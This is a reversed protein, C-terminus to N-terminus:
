NQRCRIHVSPFYTIELCGSANQYHESAKPPTRRMSRVVNITLYYVSCLFLIYKTNPHVRLKLVYPTGILIPRFHTYQFSGSPTSLVALGRLTPFHVRKTSLPLWRLKTVPLPSGPQALTPASEVYGAFDRTRNVFKELEILNFFDIEKFPDKNCSGLNPDLRHGRREGM